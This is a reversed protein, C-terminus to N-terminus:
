LKGEKELRAKLKLITEPEFWALARLTRLAAGRPTPCLAKRAAEENMAAVRAGYKAIFAVAIERDAQFQAQAVRRQAERENADQRM